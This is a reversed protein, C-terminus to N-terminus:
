LSVASFKVSTVAGTSVDFSCNFVADMSAASGIQGAPFFPFTVRILDSSRLPRHLITPGSLTYQQGSSAGVGTVGRMDVIVELVPPNGLVNDLVLRTKISANGTFTIMESSGKLSASVPVMVNNVAASACLSALGVLAALFVAAGRIVLPNTRM